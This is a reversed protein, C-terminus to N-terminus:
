GLVEFQQIDLCPACLFVQWLLATKQSVNSDLAIPDDRKVLPKQLEFKVGYYRQHYMLNADSPHQTLFAFRIFISKIKIVHLRKTYVLSVIDDNNASGVLSNERHPLLNTDQFRLDAIMCSLGFVTRALGIQCEAHRAAALIPM